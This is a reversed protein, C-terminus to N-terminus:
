IGSLQVSFSHQITKNGFYTGCVFNGVDALSVNMIILNFEGFSNNRAIKYKNLLKFNSDIERGDFLLGHSNQWIVPTSTSLFPCKLEINEGKPM